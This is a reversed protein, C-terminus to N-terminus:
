SIYMYARAVYLGDSLIRSCSAMWESVVGIEDDQYASMQEHPQVCARIAQWNNMEKVTQIGSLLPM